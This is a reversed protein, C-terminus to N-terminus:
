RPTVVREAPAEIVPRARAPDHLLAREAFDQREQLEAVERRLTLSEEEVARLREETEASATAPGAWRREIARGLALGVRGLVLCATCVFVLQTFEVPDM